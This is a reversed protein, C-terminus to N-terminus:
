MKFFYYLLSVPPCHILNVGISAGEPLEVVHAQHGSSQQGHFKPLKIIDKWFRSKPSSLEKDIYEGGSGNALTTGSGTSTMVPHPPKRSKSVPSHAPPGRAGGISYKRISRALSSSSSSGGASAEVNFVEAQDTQIRQTAAVRQPEASQFTTKHLLEQASRFLKMNSLKPKRWVLMQQREVACVYGRYLNAILAYGSDRYFRAAINQDSASLVDSEM